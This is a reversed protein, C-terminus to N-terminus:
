APMSPPARPRPAPGTKNQFCLGFYIKKLQRTGPLQPQRCCHAPGAPAATHPAPAPLAGAARRRRRGGVGSRRRATAAGEASRRCSCRNSCSSCSSPRASPSSSPERSCAAVTRRSAQLTRRHNPRQAAPAVNPNPQAKPAMGLSRKTGTPPAHRPQRRPQGPSRRDQQSASKRLWGAVGAQHAPPRSSCGVSGCGWGSGAKWRSRVCASSTLAVSRAAEGACPGVGCCGEGEGDM